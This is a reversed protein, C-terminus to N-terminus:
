GAFLIFVCVCHIGVQTPIVVAKIGRDWTREKTVGHSARRVFRQHLLFCLIWPIAKKLM